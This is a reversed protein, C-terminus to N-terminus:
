AAAVDLNKFLEPDSSTYLSLFVIGQFFFSPGLMFRYMSINADKGATSDPDQNMKLNLEPM